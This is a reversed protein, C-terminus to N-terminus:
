KESQQRLADLEAQLAIIQRQQEENATTLLNLVNVLNRNVITQHRVTRNVYFLVLAHAHHRILGWVYSLVPIRTTPAAVMLPETEFQHYIRNVLQLHHYLNPEYAIDVPKQPCLVPDFTPFQSIPLGKEARRNTIRQEIEATLTAPDLEPDSIELWHPDLQVPKDPM